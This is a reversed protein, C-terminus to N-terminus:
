RVRKVEYISDIRKLERIVKNLVENSSIVVNLNISYEQANVRDVKISSITVKMDNLKKMIDIPVNDRFNSLVLLKVDFESIAKDKWKVNIKRNVLDLSKLNPCDARHISVGNAYTIYGIIEDGIIPSCCKAFKVLCNDIGEVEVVENSSKKRKGTQIRLSSLDEPIHHIENYEIIIRNAAKLYSLSGFGINEYINELDKCKLDKCVRSLVEDSLLEDKPINHKKLEKDLLEKGRLTNIDKDKKKIYSTIKNKASTTKVYKLWDLNPGKSSSSTIIEVVDTNQLITSIPVIKGNVKAGTMKEAVKQHVSYAFDIVSSGKPLAKIEGKPTFVFVEEGFLEIKYANMGSFSGTLEKQLELSQRIWMIKAETDDVKNSHNKEKYMFHAAIGYEAHMQMDWTRIQVEFAKGNEGFVTTHLSQYNNTKPVAIYDKFRGPMPKYKEHILGLATYCDKVSDVIIRIALLDFIGDIDYGKDQMKKYISYFHKPRGYIEAKVNEKELINKIESIKEAVFAERESKKSDIKKKLDYYEDRHLVKFSIDELESKIKSIGLRHAIPAYIEMTEKAKTIRFDEPMKSENRMNYLRDVLKIIVVRIDKAIAMFMKRLTDENLKDLNSYNLYTIKHVGKILDAVDQGLTEAVENLDGGNRPLEHLLAAYVSTSDLKLLAVDTAVGITHELYLEGTYRRNDSYVKKAIEIANELDRKDYKIKSEEIAKRLTEEM